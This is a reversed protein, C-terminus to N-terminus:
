IFISWPMIIKKQYIIGSIIIIIKRISVRQQQQQKFSYHKLTFSTLHIQQQQQKRPQKSNIIYNNNFFFLRFIDIPFINKKQEHVIITLRKHTHTHTQNTLRNTTSQRTHTHEFYCIINTQHVYMKASFFLRVSVCLWGFSNKKDRKKWFWDNWHRYICFFIGMNM